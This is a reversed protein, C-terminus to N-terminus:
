SILPEDITRLDTNPFGDRFDDRALALAAVAIAIHESKSEKYFRKAEVPLKPKGHLPKDSICLLTAHPIRYRFGNVAVTASEMDVAISRSAKLGSLAGRLSLEWNRDATTYVTGVRYALNREDLVHALYRNLWFNPAVPVSTPLADDLLRDARMYGSALVFDGIDQHNRVGACHGVMLMADPRLVAVHDTLNKANSPGVGINIISFGSNDPEKHHYALMQVDRRSPKVCDVHMEVFVEMHMRYNTLLIYRQFDEAKTGTYHELRQVSLDVREPGFLFLKKRTIDLSSEDIKQLLDPSSLDIRPRSAEVEIEAGQCALKLLERRLYWRYAAPRAIEGSIVPNHKSWHRTVTIKSYRDGGSFRELQECLDDVRVSLEDGPAGREIKLKEIVSDALSNWENDWERREIFLRAARFASPSETQPSRMRAHRTAM